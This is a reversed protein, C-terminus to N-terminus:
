RENSEGEHGRNSVGTQLSNIATLSATSFYPCSSNACIYCCDENPTYTTVACDSNNALLQRTIEARRRTEQIFQSSLVEDIERNSVAIEDVAISCPYLAAQLLHVQRIRKSSKVEDLRIKRSSIEQFLLDIRYGRGKQEIDVLSYGSRLHRAIVKVMALAHLAQFKFRDANSFPASVYGLCLIKRALLYPAIRLGLQVTMSAM